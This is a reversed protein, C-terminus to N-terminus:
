KNSRTIIKHQRILVSITIFLMSYLLLTLLETFNFVYNSGNTLFSRAIGFPLIKAMIQLTNPLMYAPYICGSSYCLFVVTFFYTLIGSIMNSSIEYIMFGFSSTVLIIPFIYKAIQILPISFEFNKIGINNLVSLTGSLFGMILLFVFFIITFFALFEPLVQKLSSTGHSYLLGNLSNDKKIYLHAFPLIMVCVYLVTFSCFLYQPLQIGPDVDLNKVDYVNSRDLILGVYEVSIKNLVKNAIDKHGNEWLADYAGYSASQSQTMIDTIVVTIEDKFMSVLNTSSSTTVFRISNIDGSLANEIFGEPFVAYASIQGTQLQQEADKEDLRVLELAFRSSDMSKIAALGMDVYKDGPEGVIAIKIKQSYDEDNKDMNIFALYVASLGAFFITSILLFLPFLKFVRKFQLFLYNTM